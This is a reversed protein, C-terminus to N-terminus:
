YDRIHNAGHSLSGKKGQILLLKRVKNISTDKAGDNDELLQAGSNLHRAM